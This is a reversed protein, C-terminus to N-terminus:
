ALRTFDFRLEFLFLFFIFFIPRSAVFRIQRPIVVWADWFKLGM